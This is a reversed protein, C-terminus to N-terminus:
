KTTSKFHEQVLAAFRDQLLQYNRKHNKSDRELHQMSNWFRINDKFLTNYDDREMQLDQRLYACTGRVDKLEESVRKLSGNAQKLEESLKKITEDRAELMDGILENLTNKWELHNNERLLNMNAQEIIEIIEKREKNMAKLHKCKSCNPHPTRNGRAMKLFAHLFWSAICRALSLFLTLCPVSLLSRSDTTSEAHRHNERRM